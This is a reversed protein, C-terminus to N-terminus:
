RQLDKVALGGNARLEEVIYGVAESSIEYACIATGVPSSDRHLELMNYVTSQAELHAGTHTKLEPLKLDM